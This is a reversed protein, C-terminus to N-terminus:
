ETGSAEEEEMKALARGIADLDANLSALVMESRVVQRRYAALLIEEESVTRQLNVRFTRLEEITYDINM